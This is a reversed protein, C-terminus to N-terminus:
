NKTFGVDHLSCFGNNLHSMKTYSIWYIFTDILISAPQLVFFWTRDFLQVSYLIHGKSKSFIGNIKLKREFMEMYLNVNQIQFNRWISTDVYMYVCTSTTSNSNTDPWIIKPVSHMSVEPSYFIGISHRWSYVPWTWIHNCLSWSNNEAPGTTIHVKVSLPIKFHELDIIYNALGM